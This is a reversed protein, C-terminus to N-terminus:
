RGGGCVVCWPVRWAPEAHMTLAELDITITRNLTRLPRHGRVFAVIEGAALGALWHRHAALTGFAPHSGGTALMQEQAAKLEAHAATNELLRRRFCEYCAGEGPVFFPGLTAHLGHSLDVFLCPLKHGVAFGNRAVVMALDPREWACVMAAVLEAGAPERGVDVAQVGHEGLVRGILNALECGGASAIKATPLDGTAAFHGLYRLQLDGGDDTGVLLGRDRLSAILETVMEPLAGAIGRHLEGAAITGDMRRLVEALVRGAPGSIFHIEEDGARLQVGDPLMDIVALDPRLRPHSEKENM